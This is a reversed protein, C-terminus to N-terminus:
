TKKLCYVYGESTTVVLVGDKVAPSSYIAGLSYLVRLYDNYTRLNGGFDDRLTDDSKFYKLHNDNYGKTAYTWRVAGNKLDVAFIKGMHTGFYATTTGLTAPGFINFKADVKWKEKGTRPDFALFLRDDSTGVYLVTDRATLATAWGAPFQKNWHCYGAQIDIAYLNYDRSGIFILGGAVVPSGQMEGRPFYRHGVSKFKWTLTGDKLNINYLYGDSAGVFIKDQHIVPTTHIIDDAKFSWEMKGTASQVAYLRGDGSGFYVVGNHLIPSSHFYDAVDYRREGLIGGRTAFTWIRKGTNKDLCYLFGDGGLLYLQQNDIKPTSRLPGGNRFKWKVAGTSLDLAYFISDLGGLYVMNQDILPTAVIPQTTEFKWQLTPLTEIDSSTSTAKQASVVHFCIIFTLTLTFTIKM